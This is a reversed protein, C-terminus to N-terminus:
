GLFDSPHFVGFSAAAYCLFGKLFPEVIRVVQHIQTVLEGM